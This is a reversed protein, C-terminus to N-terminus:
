PRGADQSTVIAPGDAGVLRGRLVPDAHVARLARIVQWPDVDLEDAGVLRMQDGTREAVWRGLRPMSETIPNPAGPHLQVAILNRRRVSGQRTHSEASIGSVHEWRYTHSPTVIRTPTILLRRRPGTRLRHASVAALAFFAAFLACVILGVVQGAGVRGAEVIRRVGLGLTVVLGLFLLGMAVELAWSPRKLPIGVGWEGDAAQM